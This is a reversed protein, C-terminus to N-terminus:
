EVHEVPPTARGKATATLLKRYRGNFKEPGRTAEVQCHAYAWPRWPPDVYEDAPRQEVKVECPEPPPNSLTNGTQEIERVTFIVHGFGTLADILLDQIGANHAALQTSDWVSLGVILNPDDPQEPKFAGERVANERKSWHM